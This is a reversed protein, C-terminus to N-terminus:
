LNYIAVSKVVADATKITVSNSFPMPFHLVNLKSNTVKLGTYGSRGLLPIGNGGTSKYM